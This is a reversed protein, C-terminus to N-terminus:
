RFTRILLETLQHIRTTKRVDVGVLPKIQRKLAHACVLDFDQRHSGRRHACTPLRRSAARHEPHTHHSGRKLPRPGRPRVITAKQMPHLAPMSYKCM